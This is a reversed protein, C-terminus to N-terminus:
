EGVKKLEINLSKDLALGTNPIVQICRDDWLEIMAFDKTATVALEQGIHKKCWVKILKEQEDAFEITDNVGQENRLLTKAVRATVIRVDKGEALWIKVRKIMRPIPEGINGNWKHYEALTGDLDVGIWGNM